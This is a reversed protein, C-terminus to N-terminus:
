ERCFPAHWHPLILPCNRHCNDAFCLGISLDGAIKSIANRFSFNSRPDVKIFSPPIAAETFVVRMQFPLPYTLKLLRSREFRLAHGLCGSPNSVVRSQMRMTQIGSTFM